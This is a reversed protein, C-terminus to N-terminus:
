LIGSEQPRGDKWYIRPVRRSIACVIEYNITGITRAMDSATIREGDQEGILIVADGPQVAIDDPVRVMTQDMCVRGVIPCRRGHILVEGKNSLLRFLGDAYGVPLTAIRERAPARYTCGYSVPTGAEVTKVLAVQTRWTLAPKLAVPWTVGPDPPLGYLAIGARVLDYHGERHLMIGASNCAHKLSPDIGAAKLDGLISDFTALQRAAYDNEPEDATALHTFIGEIEIGPLAAVERAFAVIEPARKGIRGMGTDAKLHVPARRGAAQAADSLARAFPLDFLAPRLNHAIVASAQAPPVYGFILTPATIGAARLAAGEEMAAIGLWSAGAELAARAVPVAGHGYGDAKVVAMLQAEPTLKRLARVNYQIADLDIDARTPRIRAMDM